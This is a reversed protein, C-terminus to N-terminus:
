LARSLRYLATEQVQPRIHLPALEDGEEAARCCRPREGSARSRALPSRGRQQRAASSPSSSAGSCIRGWTCSVANYRSLRASQYHRFGADFGNGCHVALTATPDNVDYGARASIWRQGNNTWYAVFGPATPKDAFHWLPSM